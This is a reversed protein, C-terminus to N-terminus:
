RKIEMERYSSLRPANSVAADATVYSVASEEETMGFVGLLSGDSLSIVAYGLSSISTVYGDEGFKMVVPDQGTEGGGMFMLGMTQEADYYYFLEGYAGSYVNGDSYYFSGDFVIEHTTYNVSGVLMPHAYGGFGEFWDAQLIVTNRDIVNLYANFKSAVAEGNEPYVYDILMAGGVVPTALYNAYRYEAPSFAANPNGWVDYFAGEAVTVDFQGEPMRPIYVTVTQADEAIVYEANLQSDGADEHYVVQIPNKLGADMVQIPLKFTLSADAASWDTGEAPTQFYSELIPFPVWDTDWGLGNYSYDSNLGTKVAAAKNGSLDKVLGEEFSVMYGAGNGAEPCVITVVNNDVTINEGAILEDQKYYQGVGWAIITVYANGSGRVVAENFQLTLVNSDVAAGALAPATTDNMTVDLVAVEGILGTETIAAAFIQYTEAAFDSCDLTVSATASAGEGIKTNFAEAAAAFTETLLIDYASPVENDSGPFVAYAYQAANESAVVDFSLTVDNAENLVLSVTPKQKDKNQQSLGQEQECANFMLAAALFAVLYKITKM